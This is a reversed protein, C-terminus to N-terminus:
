EAIYKKWNLAINIRSETSLESYFCQGERFEPVPEYVIGTLRQLAECRAGFTSARLKRVDELMGYILPKIFSSHRMTSALKIACYQINLDQDNFLDIVHSTLDGWIDERNQLSFLVAM